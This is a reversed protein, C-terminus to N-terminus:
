RARVRGKICVQKSFKRAVKPIVGNRTGNVTIVFAM